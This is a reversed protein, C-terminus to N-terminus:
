KKGERRFRKLNNLAMGVMNVAILTALTGLFSWGVQFAVMADLNFKTFCLIHLLLIIICGENFLEIYLKRKELFPSSSL